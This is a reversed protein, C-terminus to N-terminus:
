NNLNCFKSRYNRISAKAKLGILEKNKTLLNKEKSQYPFINKNSFTLRHIFYLNDQLIELIKLEGDQLFLYSKLQRFFRGARGIRHLYSFYDIPYDGHLILNVGNFDVGRSYLDTCIFYGTKISNFNILNSARKRFKVKGNSNYITIHPLIKNCLASFYSIQEKSSFFIVGKFSKHYNMFSLLVSTKNNKTVFLYYQLLNKLKGMYFSQIGRKVNLFIPKVMNLYSINKLGESLTNSFLLTQKNQPLLETFTGWFLNSRSTLVQDAEDIALTFIECWFPILYEPKNITSGRPTSILIQGCREQFQNQNKKRKLLSNIQINTFISVMELNCTVQLCLERNPCLVLSYIKDKQIVDQKLIKDVIPLTFCLTKGSGTSGSGLIDRGELAYPISLNQIKTLYSFGFYRLAKKLEKKIELDDFLKIM